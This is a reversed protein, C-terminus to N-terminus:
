SINIFKFFALLHKAMSLAEVKFCFNRIVGKELTHIVKALSFRFATFHATLGYDILIFIDRISHLCVYCLQIRLSLLSCWDMSWQQNM